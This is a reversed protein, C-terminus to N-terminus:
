MDRLFMTGEDESHFYWEPIKSIQSKNNERLQLDLNYIESNQLRTVQYMTVFSESCWVKEM